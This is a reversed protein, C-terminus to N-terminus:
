IISKKSLYIREAANPKEVLQVHRDKVGGVFALNLFHERSRAKTTEPQHRALKVGGFIWIKKTPLLDLIAFFLRPM